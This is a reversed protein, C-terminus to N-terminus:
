GNVPCPQNSRPRGTRPPNCTPAPRDDGGRRHLHPHRVRLTKIGSNRHRRRDRRDAGRHAPTRHRTPPISVVAIGSKWSAATLKSPPTLVTDILPHLPSNPAAPTTRTSATPNSHPANTAPPSRSRRAAPAHPHHSARQRDTAPGTRPPEHPRRPTQLRRPLVTRHLLSSGGLGAEDM